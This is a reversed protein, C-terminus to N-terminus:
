QKNSNDNNLKSNNVDINNTSYTNIYILKNNRYM